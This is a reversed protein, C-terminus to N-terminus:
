IDYKKEPPEPLLIQKAAEMHAGQKYRMFEASQLYRSIDRPNGPKNVTLTGNLVLNHIHAKIVAEIVDDPATEIPQRESM